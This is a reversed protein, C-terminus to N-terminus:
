IQLHTFLFLHVARFLFANLYVFTFSNLFLGSAQAGCNLAFHIRPDFNNVRYKYRSDNQEFFIRKSTPHVRNARLIGHEIDDLSFVLSQKGIRYSMRSWFQGELQMLMSMKSDNNNTIQKNAYLYAISHMTLANYIYTLLLPSLM